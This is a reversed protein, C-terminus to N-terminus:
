SSSWRVNVFDEFRGVENASDFLMAGNLWLPLELAEASANQVDATASSM